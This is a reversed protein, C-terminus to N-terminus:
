HNKSLVTSVGSDQVKLPFPLYNWITSLQYYIVSLTYGPSFTKLCRLKRYRPKVGTNQITVMGDLNTPTLQLTNGGKM